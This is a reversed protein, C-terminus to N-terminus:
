LAPLYEQLQATIREILKNTDFSKQTTSKDTKAKLLENRSIDLETRIVNIVSNRPYLALLEKIPKSQIFKDVQPIQALLKQKETM